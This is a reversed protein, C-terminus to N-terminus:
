SASPSPRGTEDSRTAALPLHDEDYTGLIAVSGVVLLDPDGIIQSAARLVHELQDRRV